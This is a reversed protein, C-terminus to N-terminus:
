YWRNSPKDSRGLSREEVFTRYKDGGVGAVWPLVVSDELVMDGTDKNFTCFAPQGSSMKTIRRLYECMRSVKKMQIVSIIALLFVVNFFYIYV